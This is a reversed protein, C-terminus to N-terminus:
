GDGSRRASQRPDAGRELVSWLVVCPEDGITWVRHPMSSDLRIADGPELEFSDFGVTAGLRGSLVLGFERGRHRILADPECSAAGAGYTVLTFDFGPIETATLRELRVGPAIGVQSRMSKRLVASPVSAADEQEADGWREIDGEPAPAELLGDLSLDLASVISALTDVSPNATGKEIQSVMSPSMGVADALARISM